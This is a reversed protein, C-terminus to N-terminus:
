KIITGTKADQDVGLWMPKGGDDAALLMANSEVGAVNKPELNTIAIVTRGVLEDPTYYEAGGIIVGREEDGIDITGKLIRTKGPIPEAAVIKAVRIELKAFDDYSIKLTYRHSPTDYKTIDRIM